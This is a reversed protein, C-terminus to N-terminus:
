CLPFTPSLGSVTSFLFIDQNKRSDFVSEEASSGTMKGSIKPTHLFMLMRSCAVIKGAVVQINRVLQRIKMFNRVDAISNFHLLIRLHAGNNTGNLVIYNSLSNSDFRSKVVEGSVFKQVQSGALNVIV